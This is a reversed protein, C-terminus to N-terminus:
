RTVCICFGFDTIYLPYKGLHQIALCHDRYWKEITFSGLSKNLLPVIQRFENRPATIGTFWYAYANGGNPYGTFPMFPAVTVLFLGEAFNGNETFVANIVQTSGGSIWSQVPYVSIIQLNELKPCQPMLMQVVQSQAVLYFQTLFNAPTLPNVVPMDFWAPPYMKLYQWDIQKQEVSMYFPGVLGFYFIKRLPNVKDQVLFSFTSCSGAVNVAWGKPKDISFFGANFEELQPQAEAIYNGSCLVLILIFLSLAKKM